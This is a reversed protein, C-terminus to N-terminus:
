TRSIQSRSAGTAIVTTMTILCFVASVLFVSDASVQDLLYGYMPPAIIGGVNFGTSVFGFVKGFQGEPTVSRILMDRSPSVAGSFFGGIVFLVAIGTLPPDLLVVAAIAAAMILFCGGAFLGHRTTRDAVWGGVLVGVPSAFLWASLVTGAAALSIGEGVHLSSVGFGTVGRNIMSIGAFFLLGLVVPLTLLVGMGSKGDSRAAKAAAAAKPTALSGANYALVVATAVGAAGALMLAVRWNFLAALGLITIPALAEGVYGSFTHISFARGMRKDEVVENLIAYDAPHYVSNAIGGIGLLVILSVYGPIVGILGFALAEIAVGAILIRTPGYRDVAFGMPAQTFGSLVSFASLAFGLEMYGVDYAEALVPFLPALLLLYFHSFFHAVSVLAVARSGGKAPAIVPSDGM